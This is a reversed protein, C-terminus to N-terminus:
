YNTSNLIILVGGTVLAVQFFWEKSGFDIKSKTERKIDCAAYILMYGVIMIIINM